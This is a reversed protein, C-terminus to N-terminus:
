RAAALPNALGGAPVALAHQAVFARGIDLGFQGRGLHLGRHILHARFELLLVERLIQVQRRLGRRQARTAPRARLSRLEARLAALRKTRFVLAAAAARRELGTRLEARLTAIFYPLRPREDRM